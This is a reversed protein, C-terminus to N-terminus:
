DRRCFGPTLFKVSQEIKLEIQSITQGEAMMVMIGADSIIVAVEPFEASANLTQTLISYRVNRRIKERAVPCQMLDLEEFVM